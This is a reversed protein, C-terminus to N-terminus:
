RDATGSSADSGAAHGGPPLMGPLGERGSAIWRGYLQFLRLVIAVYGIVVISQPWKQDVGLSPSVYEVQWLLSVYEWGVVLMLTCFGLWLLDGVLIAAFGLPRPLAEVVFLIRIHFRDRVAMAAGMYVAWVMSFGALEETWTIATGFAYRSVVQAFVCLAILVIAFQALVEEFRDVIIRVVHPHATM